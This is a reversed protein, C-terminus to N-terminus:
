KTAPQSNTTSQSDANLIWANHHTDHVYTAQRGCGRVGAVVSYLLDDHFPMPHQKIPVIQVSEPPCQMDFGARRRLEDDHAAVRAVESDRSPGCGLLCWIGTVIAFPAKRATKM